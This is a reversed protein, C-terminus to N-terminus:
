LHDKIDSASTQWRRAADLLSQSVQSVEFMDGGVAWQCCLLGPLSCRGKITATSPGAWCTHWQMEAGRLPGRENRRVRRVITRFLGKVWVHVILCPPQKQAAVTQLFVAVYVGEMNEIQEATSWFAVFTSNKSRPTTNLCLSQLRKGSISIATKLHTSQKKIIYENQWWM